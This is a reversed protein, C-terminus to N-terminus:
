PYTRADRLPPAYIHLSVTREGSANALQHIVGKPFALISDQRHATERQLALGDHGFVYIRNELRGEVIVACGYSNGHDHIFTETNPPLHVVIVEFCDNRHIVTRGYPFEDPERANPLVMDRLGPIGKLAAVTEDMSPVAGLDLRRMMCSALEM